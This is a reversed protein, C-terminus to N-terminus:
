NLDLTVRDGIDIDYASCLGGNVELVYKCPGSSAIAVESLPTANEHIDIITLNSAIFIMDLPILTDKMWFYRPEDNDFIFLMGAEKSLSNRNMLGQAREDPSDAIEVDIRMVTGNGRVLDVRSAPGTQQTIFVLAGMALVIIAIASISVIFLRNV